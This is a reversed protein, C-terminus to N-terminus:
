LMVHLHPGHLKGACGEVVFSNLYDTNAIQEFDARPGLSVVGTCFMELSNREAFNALIANRAVNL